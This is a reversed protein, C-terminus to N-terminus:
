IYNHMCAGEGLEHHLTGADNRMGGPRRSRCARKMYVHLLKQIIIYHTIHICYEHSVGTIQSLGAEYTSLELTSSVHRRSLPVCKCCRM